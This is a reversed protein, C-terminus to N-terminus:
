DAPLTAGLREFIGEAEDRAEGGLLWGSRATQYPCDLQKFLEFSERLRADDGSRIGEARMLIGRAYRHEGSNGQALRM